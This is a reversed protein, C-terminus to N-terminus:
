REGLGWISKSELGNKTLVSSRGHGRVSGGRRAPTLEKPRPPVFAWMTSSSAGIASGRITAGLSRGCLGGLRELPALSLERVV